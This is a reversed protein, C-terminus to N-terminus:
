YNYYKEFIYGSAGRLSNLAERNEIIKIGRGRSGKKKKAILPFPIESEALVSDLNEWWKATKVDGQDFCRKMRTKSSSNEIAEVSNVEIFKIRKNRRRIDSFVESTTTPSGFRIISRIPGRVVGRRIGRHSPHRSRIRAKFKSM